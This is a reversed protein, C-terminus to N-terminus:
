LIQDFNISMKKNKTIFDFFYFGGFPRGKPPNKIRQANRVEIFWATLFLANRNNHM